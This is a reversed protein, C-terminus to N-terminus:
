LIPAQTQISTRGQNVQPPSAPNTSYSLTYDITIVNPSDLGRTFSFSPVLRNMPDGALSEGGSQGCSISPIAAPSGLPGTYRIFRKPPGPATCFYFYEQPAGALIASFASSEDANTYGSLTDSQAGTSPTVIYSANMLSARLAEISLVGQGVMTVDRLIGLQRRSAFSTTIMLASLIVSGIALSIVLEILSFGAPPSPRISM